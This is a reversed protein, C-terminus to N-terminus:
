LGTEANRSIVEDGSGIGDGAGPLGGGLEVRALGAAVVQARVRELGVGSELRVSRSVLDVDRM